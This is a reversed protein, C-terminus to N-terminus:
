FYNIIFLRVKITSAITTKIYDSTYSEDTFKTMLTQYMKNMLQKIEANKDDSVLNKNGLNKQETELMTVKQELKINDKQYKIVQENTSKIDELAKQHESRVEMLKLELEKIRKKLEMEESSFVKNDEELRELKNVNEVSYNKITKLEDELSQIKKKADELEIDSSNKEIESTKTDNKNLNLALLMKLSSELAKENSPSATANQLELIHFKDLLKQINDSIKSMGMRIEANHTRTESLFININPDLSGTVPSQSVSSPFSYLQGDVTSM